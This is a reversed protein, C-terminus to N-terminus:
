RETSVISELRHRKAAAMLRGDQKTDRVFQNMRALWREDGPAVAYAYPTLHYTSPPSVLRAWDTQELMRRSFPYDTMFVDTRGSEVDQERGQATPNVKLTAAKLKDRMVTEHVTGKAVSVEVGAQDIDAWSKIRRNSKTTIAFMDSVLHPQTFRLKESRAPTIGIAFMAVDCRDQILDDILTAFSSNVFKLAVKLDKALHQAMDVDIGQLQQTRPDRYSIGYYDPWICVRLSQSASIRDLHGVQAQALACSLSMVVVGIAKCTNMM